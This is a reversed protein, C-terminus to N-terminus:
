APMDRTGRCNPFKTCSWFNNGANDGYKAERQIMAANCAPCAPAHTGSVSAAARSQIGQSVKAVRIMEILKDGDVLQINQAAAVAQADLSYQGSTVVFGGAAGQSLIVDHLTQVVDAGVIPSKWQKCQVLFLESSKSLVLDVCGDPETGGRQAVMFGQLRFADGVLSEFESWGMAKLESAATSNPTEGSLARRRRSYFDSVATRAHAMLSILYPGAPDKPPLKTKIM